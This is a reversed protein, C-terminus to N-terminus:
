KGSSPRIAARQRREVEAEAEDLALGILYELLPNGENEAFNKAELLAQVIQGM